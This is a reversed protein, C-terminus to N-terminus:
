AADGRVPLTVCMRTGTGAGGRRAEVQGGHREVISKVIWLGLGLGSQEPEDGPARVFREFLSQGEQPPLGPGADELWLTVAGPECTGGIQITSRAPAFKHANALLNVFVQTLRPADGTIPPLPRPLDVRVEQGRQAILPHMLELADAVVAELAVSQRRLRDNGAEIRVSELLNDILQTLRLAGRQQALVLRGIEEVTLGPLQDLLLEISALQAALPTKFEHSVNALVADRLRRAAEVETEDRLLLV